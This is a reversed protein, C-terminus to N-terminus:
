LSTMFVTLIASSLARDLSYRRATRRNRYEIPLRADGLNNRHLCGIREPNALRGSARGRRIANWQRLGRRGLNVDHLYQEFGPLRM